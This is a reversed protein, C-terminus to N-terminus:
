MELIILPQHPLQDPFWSQSMLVRTSLLLNPHCQNWWFVWFPYDAHLFFPVMSFMSLAKEAQALAPDSQPLNQPQCVMEQATNRYARWVILWLAALRQQQWRLQDNSLHPFFWKEEPSFVIQLLLSIHEQKQTAGLLGPYPAFLLPVWRSVEQFVNTVHWLAM